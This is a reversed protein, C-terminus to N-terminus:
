EEKKNENDSKVRKAAKELKKEYEDAEEDSSFQNPKGLVNIIEEQLNPEVRMRRYRNRLM